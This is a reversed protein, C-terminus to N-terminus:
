PWFPKLIFKITSDDIDNIGSEFCLIDQFCRMMNHDLDTPVNIMQKFAVKDPM